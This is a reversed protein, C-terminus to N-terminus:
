VGGRNLPGCGEVLGDRLPGQHDASSPSRGLLGATLFHAAPPPEPRPLSCVAARRIERRSTHPIRAPRPLGYCVSASNRAPLHAPATSARPTEPPGPPSPRIRADPTAHTRPRETDRIHRLPPYAAHKAPAPPAPAAAAARSRRRQRLPMPPPPTRGSVIRGRAPM